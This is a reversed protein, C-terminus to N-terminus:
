PKKKVPYYQPSQRIVCKQVVISSRKVLATIFSLTLSTPLKTNQGSRFMQGINNVCGHTPTVACMRRRRRRSMPRRVRPERRAIPLACFLRGRQDKRGEKGGALHTKPPDRKAIEQLFNAGSGSREGRERERKETLPM